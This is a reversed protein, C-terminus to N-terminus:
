SELVSSGFISPFFSSWCSRNVDLFLGVSFVSNLMWGFGNNFVIAWLMPLCAMYSHDSQENILEEIDSSFLLHTPWKGLPQLGGHHLMIFLKAGMGPREFSERKRKLLFHRASRQNFCPLIFKWFDMWMKKDLSAIIPQVRFYLV